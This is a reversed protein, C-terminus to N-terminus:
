NMYMRKLNQLGAEYVGRIVDEAQDGPVGNAEFTSSWTVTSKMANVPTVSITAQYGDVPLPGSVIRYSYSMQGDDRATEQEVIEGGGALTLYRQDFLQKSITVAPHWRELDNFEGVLKWVEAAPAQVTTSETVALQDSMLGMNACSATLASGCILLTSITKKM